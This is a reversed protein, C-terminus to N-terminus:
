FLWAVQGRVSGGSVGAVREWGAEVKLAATSILEYRVGGLASSTTPTVLFAEGDGRVFREARAYAHLDERLRVALQLYGGVNDSTVAGFDHHIVAGEAILELADAVWHVDAIALLEQMDTGNALTTADFTGGAGFRLGGISAHLGATVSKGENIDGFQQPPDPRQGRGNGVALDYELRVSGAPLMGHLLVGTTHTPLPGAQDEFRALLPAQISSYMWRAHHYATNWYGLPTHFRGASISFRASPTYSIQLREVDFGFGGAGDDEYVVEALASFARSLRGHIMTDVVGLNFASSEASDGFRKGFGVDGGFHLELPNSMEEMDHAAFAAPGISFLAAVLLTRL